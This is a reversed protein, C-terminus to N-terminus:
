CVFQVPESTCTSGGGGGSPNRLVWVASADFQAQAEVHYHYIEPYNESEFKKNLRTGEYHFDYTFVIPYIWTTALV